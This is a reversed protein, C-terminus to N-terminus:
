LGAEVTVMRTPEPRRSKRSRTATRRLETALVEEKIWSRTTLLDGDREPLDVHIRDTLALGADKRM